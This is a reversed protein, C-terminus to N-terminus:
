HWEYPMRIFDVDAFDEIPFSLIYDEFVPIDDNSTINICTESAGPIQM